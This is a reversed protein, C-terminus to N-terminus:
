FRSLFLVTFRTSGGLKVPERHVVRYKVSDTTLLYNGEVIGSSAPAYGLKEIDKYRGLVSAYESIRQETLPTILVTEADDDNAAWTPTADGYDDAKGETETYVSVSEGFRTILSTFSATSM